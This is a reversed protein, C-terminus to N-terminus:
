VRDLYRKLEKIELYILTPYYNGIKKKINLKKIFDSIDKKNKYGITITKKSPQKYLEVEKSQKSSWYDAKPPFYIGPNDEWENELAKTILNNLIINNNLTQRCVKKFHLGSFKIIYKKENKIANINEKAKEKTLYILFAVKNKDNKYKYDVKIEYSSYIKEEVCRKEFDRKQKITLFTISPTYIDIKNKFLKKFVEEQSPTLRKIGLLKLM